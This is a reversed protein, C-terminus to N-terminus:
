DPPASIKVPYKGTVVAGPAVVPPKGKRPLLGGIGKGDSLFLNVRYRNPTNTVNKLGVEFYYADAKKWKGAYCKFTTVEAEPCIDWKLNSNCDAAIKPQAGACALLGVAALALVLSLFMTKVPIRKM